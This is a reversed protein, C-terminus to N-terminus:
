ILDVESLCEFKNIKQLDIQSNAKLCRISEKLRVYEFSDTKKCINKLLNALIYDKIRYARTEKKAIEIAKELKVEDNPQLESLLGKIKDFFDLHEQFANLRRFGKQILQYYNLLQPYRYLRNEHNIQFIDEYTNRDKITDISIEAPPFSYEKGEINFRFENNTLIFKGPVEEIVFNTQEM